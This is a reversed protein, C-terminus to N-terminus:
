YVVGGDHLAKLGIKNFYFNKIYICYLLGTKSARTRTRKKGSM